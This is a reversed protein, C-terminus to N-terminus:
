RVSHMTSFFPVPAIAHTFMSSADPTLRVIPKSSQFGWPRVRARPRVRAVSGDLPAVNRKLCGEDRRPKRAVVRDHSLQRRLVCRQERDERPAWLRVLRVLQYFEDVVLGDSSVCCLKEGVPDRGPRWSTGSGTSM